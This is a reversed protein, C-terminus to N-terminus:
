VDDDAEFRDEALRDLEDPYLQKAHQVVELVGISGLNLNEIHARADMETGTKLAGELAMRVM